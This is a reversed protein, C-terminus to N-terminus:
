VEYKTSSGSFSFGLINKGEELRRESEEVDEDRMEICNYRAQRSLDELSRYLSHVRNDIDNCDQISNKRENHSTANYGHMVLREDIYHLLSYFRITIIWDNKDPHSSTLDEAFEENDRALDVPDM